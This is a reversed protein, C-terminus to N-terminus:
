KRSDGLIEQTLNRRVLCSSQILPHKRLACKQVLNRPM